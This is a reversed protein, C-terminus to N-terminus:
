QESGFAEMMDHSTIHNPVLRLAYGEPISCLNSARVSKWPIPPRESPPFDMSILYSNRTNQNKKMVIGFHLENHQIWCVPTGAKYEIM